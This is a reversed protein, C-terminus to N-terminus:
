RADERSELLAKAMALLADKDRSELNGFIRHMETDRSDSCRFHAHEIPADTIDSPRVDLATALAEITTRSPGNAGNEYQSIAARTKGIARALDSQSM